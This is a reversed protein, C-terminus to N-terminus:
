LSITFNNYSIMIVGPNGSGYSAGGGYGEGVITGGDPGEGNM